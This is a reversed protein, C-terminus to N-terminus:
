GGGWKEEEEEEDNPRVGVGGQKWKRAREREERVFEM